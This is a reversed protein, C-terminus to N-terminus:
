RDRKLEVKMAKVASEILEEIDDERGKLFPLLNCLKGAALEYKEEGQGEDPLKYEAYKVVDIAIDYILQREIPDEIDAINDFGKDLVGAFWKGIRNPIMRKLIVFALPTLVGMAFIGLKGTIASLIGEM